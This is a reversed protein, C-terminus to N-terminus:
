SVSGCAPLEAFKVWLVEGFTLLSGISPRARGPRVARGTECPESRDEEDCVKPLNSIKPLTGPPPLPVYSPRLTGPKSPGDM